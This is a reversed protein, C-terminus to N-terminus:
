KQVSTGSEIRYLTPTRRSPISLILLAFSTVSIAAMVATATTKM